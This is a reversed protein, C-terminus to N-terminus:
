FGMRRVLDLIRQRQDTNTSMAGGGAGPPVRGAGMARYFPRAEQARMAADGFFDGMGGVGPRLQSAFASGEGGARFSSQVMPNLAANARSLSAALTEAPPRNVRVAPTAPTKTTRRQPAAGIGDEDLRMM